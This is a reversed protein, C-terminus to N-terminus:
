YVQQFNLHPYSNSYSYYGIHPVISLIVTMSAASVDVCRRRCWAPTEGMQLTFAAVVVVGPSVAAFFLSRWHGHM